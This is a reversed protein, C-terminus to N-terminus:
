GGVPVVIVHRVPRELRRENDFLDVTIRLAAPFVDERVVNDCREGTNCDADSECKDAGDTCLGEDVESTAAFIATNLHDDSAGYGCSNWILLPDKSQGGFREKLSYSTETRQNGLQINENKLRGGYLENLDVYRDSNISNDVFEKDLATKLPALPNDDELNKPDKGDNGPDLWFLRSEGDLRGGVFGSDPDLTWEVKFSACHPLFYHGLRDAYQPPPTPDLQSRAFPGQHPMLPVPDPFIAPLFCPKKQDTAQRKLVADEYIIRCMVDTTGQLFAQDDFQGPIPLGQWEAWKPTADPPPLETLLVSRRALHWMAAPLPSADGPAAVPDPFMTLNPQAALDPEFVYAPDKGATNRVYEGLEAHGYVIQQVTSAVGQQYEAPVGGQYRYNVYNTVERRTTFFMLVDARPRELREPDDRDRRQPDLAHPYGDGPDANDDGDKQDQTWYANIPNGQIVMVSAGRDVGALDDRLTREFVRLAQNVETLARARGTAQVTLTMVEGALVMMLALIGVAVVVEALSFSRLRRTRTCNM